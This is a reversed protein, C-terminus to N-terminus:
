ATRKLEFVKQNPALVFSNWEDMIERRKEFLDSRQYAEYVNDGISHMLVIESLESPFSTQEVSWVKFTSRFGHPVADVELEGSTRMKRMLQNLAMDSLMRGSPSPFIYESGVMRHLSKLLGVMQTTLPVRHVGKRTKTHEKPIRWELNEFDIESWTAQRVSGSRVGTLILFELARASNGSHSSLRQMFQSMYQYPLSAHHEVQKIAFPSPLQVSLFGQWKAPNNSTRYGRTIAYDFIKEIRGQLRKATETKTRWIPNLVKLVDELGIDEVFMAGLIPLAYTEVTSKWQKAHKENKFDNAHIEIYTSACEKFTKTKSQAQCLTAKASAKAILPDVGESVRSKLAKAKDRAEAVGVEPFSGLGLNRRKNGVYVRLVWSSHHRKLSSDYDGVYLTLGGVGGVFHVGTELRKIETLTLERNTRPM